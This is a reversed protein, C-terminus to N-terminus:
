ARVGVNDLGRIDKGLERGPAQAVHEEEACRSSFMSVSALKVLENVAMLASASLYSM